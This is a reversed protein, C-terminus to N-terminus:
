RNLLQKLELMLADEAMTQRKAARSQRQRVANPTQSQQGAVRGGTHVLKNVQALLQQKQESTLKAVWDFKQDLTLSATTTQLAGDIVSQEIGQSQLFKAIQDSDTPSGAAKWAQQLKSATIKTTLNTGVQQMTQGVAGAVKGLGQKIQKGVEARQEPSGVVKDKFQQWINAEVIIGEFLTTVQDNTLQISEMADVSPRTAVLKGAKDYISLDIGDTKYSFKGLPFQKSVGSPIDQPGAPQLGTTHQSYSTSTTTTKDGGRLADGVKSAGYALAGTEAGAVAAKSFKEGQLLKDVMKFLGLAAAGGAGAGSIGAAAILASYILSQAVPHKKAFDRYKQVYQMTGADGGTAKKLKDAAQDYAADINQMPASDIVKAKLDKYAKAVADAVDKGKGLSTRNGGAATAGQEIQQFLNSIQQPTLQAEVIAQGASEWLMMSNSATRDLGEYLYSNKTKSVETLKM